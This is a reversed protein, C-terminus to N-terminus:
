TKLKVDTSNIIAKYSKKSIKNKHTYTKVLGYLVFSLTLIIYFVDFYALSLAAGGLCYTAISLQLAISMDRAWKFDHNDKLMRMTKFNLFLGMSIVTLFLGLGIYGHDGLVEFYISHAAAPYTLKTAYQFMALTEGQQGVRFGGGLFPFQHAVETILNWAEFRINLSEDKDIKSFNMREAWEAPMVMVGIISAIVTSAIYYIKNKVFLFYYGGVFILCIWGGRSYSVLVAIVTLILTGWLIRRVFLESSYKALYHILPLCMCLAVALHNRDQIMTATPGFNDSVGINKGGELIGVLGVRVGYYGLSIIIMWLMAILREERNVLLVLMAIYIYVKLPIDMFFLWSQVPHLAYLTTIMTWFFWTFMTFVGINLTPKFKENSILYGIFTSIAIIINFQFAYAFGFTERHPNMVSFWTWILIGIFPRTFCLPLLGLFGIMVIIDRM